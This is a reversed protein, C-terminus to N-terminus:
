PPVYLNNVKSTSPKSFTVINKNELIKKVSQKYSGLNSHNNLIIEIKEICEELVEDNDYDAKTIIMGM